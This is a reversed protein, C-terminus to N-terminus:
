GDKGFVEADQVEIEKSNLVISKTPRTVNSDIKVIGKYSWSGGFQLDFLSVNYHVPKVRGGITLPVGVTPHM